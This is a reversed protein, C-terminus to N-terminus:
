NAEEIVPGTGETSINRETSVPLEPLPKAEMDLFVVEDDTMTPATKGPATKLVVIGSKHVDDTAIPIFFTDSGNKFTIFKEQLKTVRLPNKLIEKREEETCIQKKEEEAAAQAEVDMTTTESKTPKAEAQGKPAMSLVATEIKVRQEAKKGQIKEPYAFAKLRSNDVDCEVDFETQLTIKKFGDSVTVGILATPTFSLSLMHMLPYWYWYQLFMVLGAVAEAKVVKFKSDILKVACNRGGAELIGLGLIAGLRGMSSTKVNAYTTSAKEKFKSGFSDKVDWNSGSLSMGLAIYAGQRVFDVKDDSLKMLIDFLTEFEADEETMNTGAIGLAICAGYRVNPNYSEALLSILEPVKTPEDLCILGLNIVAARRVDNNVDSVAIRLLKRIAYSDSTAIYALGLAYMGGYRVIADKDGIMVNIVGSAKVNDRTRYMTFAVGLACARIIREHATKSQAIDLLKAVPSDPNDAGGRCESEGFLVLGLSWAAAESAVAEDIEVVDVLRDVLNNNRESPIQLSGENEVSQLFDAPQVTATLIGDGAGFAILGVGLCAGHIIPEWSKLQFGSQNEDVPLSIRVNLAEGLITSLYDLNKGRGTGSHVMGLAYLGGGDSFPGAISTQTLDAKPLFNKIHTSARTAKHVVGYVGAATFRSWNNSPKLFRIGDSKKLFTSVGTGSQMFGYCCLGANRLVSNNCSEKIKRFFGIDSKCKRSLFDTHIKQNLNDKMVQTLINRTDKMEELVLTLFKRDAVSLFDIAAQLALLSKDRDGAGFLKALLAAFRTSDNLAHLATFMSILNNEVTNEFFDALCAIVEAKFDAQYNKTLIEELCYSAFQSTNDGTHELVMSLKDVKRSEFAIGIAERFSGRQVCGKFLDDVVGDLQARLEGEQFIEM